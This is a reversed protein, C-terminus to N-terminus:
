QFISTLAIKFVSHKMTYAHAFTSMLIYTLEQFTLFVNKMGTLICAVNSLLREESQPEEMLVSIPKCIIFHWWIDAM